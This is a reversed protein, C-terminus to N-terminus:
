IGSSTSYPEFRPVASDSARLIAWSAVSRPKSAVTPASSSCTPESGLSAPTITTVAEYLPWGGSLAALNQWHSWSGASGASAKAPTSYLTNPQPLRSQAAVYWAIGMSISLWSSFCPALRIYRRPSPSARPSKSLSYRPQYPGSHPATAIASSRGALTPWVWGSAAPGRKVTANLLGRAAFGLM